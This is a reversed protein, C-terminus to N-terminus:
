MEFKEKLKETIAARREQKLFLTFLNYAVKIKLYRTEPHETKEKCVM